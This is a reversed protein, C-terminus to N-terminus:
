ELLHGVLEVVGRPVEGPQEADGGGGGGAGALVVEVHVDAQGGDRLVLGDEEEDPLLDRHEVRAVEVGAGVGGGAEDGEGAVVVAVGLEDDLLVPHRRQEPEDLLAAELSLLAGREGDSEEAAVGLADLLHHERAGAGGEGLHELVGGHLHLGHDCPGDGLEGGVVGIALVGEGLVVGDAQEDAVEGELGHLLVGLVGDGGLQGYMGDDHVFLVVVAHRVQELLMLM